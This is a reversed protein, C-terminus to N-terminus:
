LGLFAEKVHKNKLLEEGKGRLTIRGTEMVYAEDAVKLAYYVNQEALLISLGQGRLKEVAKFIEVTLKPSLGQSPEDLILLQPNSMLGRAIALMRQEGGSLTIALQKEREMLVPFLQYVMKLMNEKVTTGRANYAGLILNELVTLRAFLKRDEPVYSIGLNVIKNPSLGSIEKGNFIIKGSSPKSLGAITNLLTSKGAGNAGILSTIKGEDAKLCADWVVQLEGRHVNLNNVELM